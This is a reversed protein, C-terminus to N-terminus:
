RPHVRNFLRQTELQGALRVNEDHRRHGDCAIRLHEEVAVVHPLKELGDPMNTQWPRIVFRSAPLRRNLGGISVRKELPFTEIKRREVTGDPRLGDPTGDDPHM